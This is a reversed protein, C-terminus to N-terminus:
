RGRLNGRMGKMSTPMPGKPMPLVPRAADIAKLRYLLDTMEAPAIQRKMKRIHRELKGLPIEGAGTGVVLAHVPAESAVRQHRKTQEAMLAKLRGPNGDGILIIGPPGVLRHVMDQQKTVAVMQDTKWGRKFMQLMALPAGPKGEIQRIQSARARRTFVILTALVGVLIGSFLDFVLWNPPFTHFFLFGLATGVVFTGLVWLGLRSDGVKALKYGERLRSLFSPNGDKAM